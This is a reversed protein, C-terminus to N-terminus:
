TTWTRRPFKGATRAVSGAPLGPPRIVSGGPVCLNSPPRVGLPTVAERLAALAGSVEALEETGRQQSQASAETDACTLPDLSSKSSCSDGRLKADGGRGQERGCCAEAIKSSPQAMAGAGLSRRRSRSDCIPGHHALQLTLLRLITMESPGSRNAFMGGGACGVTDGLTAAFRLKKALLSLVLWKAQPCLKGENRERSAEMTVQNRCPRKKAPSRLPPIM